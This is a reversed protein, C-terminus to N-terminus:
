WSGAIGAMTGTGGRHRCRSALASRLHFQQLRQGAGRRCAPGILSAAQAGGTPAAIAVLGAVAALGFLRTLKTM